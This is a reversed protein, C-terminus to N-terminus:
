LFLFLCRLARQVCLLYAVDPVYHSPKQETVRNHKVRQSGMSQLVGPKGTWWWSGSSAWFWTWQALSVMWGDWGRNDGEGGTRLRKGSDPVEGTLQRNADSSWFVPAEADTTWHFESNIEMLISQNSRRAPCWIIHFIVWGYFPVCM